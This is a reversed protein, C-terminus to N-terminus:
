EDGAELLFVSMMIATFIIQIGVVGLTMAFVARVVEELSGFGTGIWTFVVTAGAYLGIALLVSGLMLELELSHYSFVLNILGRREGYGRVTAYAKLYLGTTIMQLGVILIFASFIFSHLHAKDVDGQMFIALGLGAGLLLILLGPLALFPLPKYLLMFRLHRWGDRFSHLKSPGIRKHYTIPVEVIKLNRRAAETLMESAFEMGGTKLDLKDLADRTIARMGCHSDTINLKFLNNLLKTLLPNGIYRHLFPMAGPDIKGRLRTGMVLDARSEELSEILKPMESIEYTGDADAIVILKGKAHKFGELYANGYGRKKPFFVKAGLSRAIHPTDDTSSDAIIVEGEVGMSEFADYAKTICSAITAEENLSPMVLSILVM